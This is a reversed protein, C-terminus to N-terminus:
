VSIFYRSEYEARIDSPASLGRQAGHFCVYVRVGTELHSRSNM